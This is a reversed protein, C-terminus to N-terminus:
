EGAHRVRHSEKYRCHRAPHLRSLLVGEAPAATKRAQRNPKILLRIPLPFNSVPLDGAQDFTILWGGQRVFEVLETM